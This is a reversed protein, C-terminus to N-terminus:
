HDKPEKTKRTKPWGRSQYTRVDLIFAPKMLSQSTCLYALVVSSTQSRLSRVSTLDNNDFKQTGELFLLAGTVTGERSQQWCLETVYCIGPKTWTSNTSVSVVTVNTIWFYDAKMQLIIMFNKGRFITPVQSFIEKTKIFSPWRERPNHLAKRCLSFFFCCTIDSPIWYQWLVPGILLQLLPTSLMSAILHVGQM